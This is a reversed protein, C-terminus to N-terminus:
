IIDIGGTKTNVRLTKGYVVVEEMKQFIKNKECWKEMEKKVLYTKLEETM